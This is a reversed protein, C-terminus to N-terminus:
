KFHKRRRRPKEPVNADSNPDDAIEMTVDSLKRQELLQYMFGYLEYYRITVIIVESPAFDQHLQTFDKKTRAIVPPKKITKQEKKRRPPPTPDENVSKDVAATVKAMELLEKDAINEKGTSIDDKVEDKAETESDDSDESEESNDHHNSPYPGAQKLLAKSVM